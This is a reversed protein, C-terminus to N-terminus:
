CFEESDPSLTLNDMESDVEELLWPSEEVVLSILRDLYWKQKSAQLVIEKLSDVVEEKTKNELELGEMTMNFYEQGGVSEIRSKKGGHSRSKQLRDMTKGRSLELDHISADKEELNNTLIENQHKLISIKDELRKVEDQLCQVHKSFLQYNGIFETENTSALHLKETPSAVETRLMGELLSRLKEWKKNLDGNKNGSKNRCLVVLSVPKGPVTSTLCINKIESTTQTSILNGNLEIIRDGVHIDPLAEAVGTVIVHSKPGTSMSVLAFQEHTLTMCHVCHSGLIQIWDFMTSNVPLTKYMNKQCHLSPSQQSSQLAAEGPNTKNLAKGMNEVAPFQFVSCSQHPESHSSPIANNSISRPIMSRKTQALEIAAYLKRKEVPSTLRTLDEQSVCVPTPNLLNYIESLLIEREELSINDYSELFPLHLEILDKGTVKHKQFLLIFKHLDRNRLWQIVDAVDFSEVMMKHESGSQMLAKIPPDSSHNTSDITSASGQNHKEM